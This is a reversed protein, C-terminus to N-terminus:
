FALVHEAQGANEAINGDKRQRFNVDAVKECLGIRHVLPIPSQINVM